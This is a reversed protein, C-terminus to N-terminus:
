IPPQASSIHERIKDLIEDLEKAVDNALSLAEASDAKASLELQRAMDMLPMACLIGAVGKLSHGTFALSKLDNDRAANRLKEPTDANTKLAKGLMKAIFDERQEFNAYLKTWDIGSTLTPPIEPAQAVEIATPYKTPEIGSTSTHRAHTRIATLLLVPDIPKAVHEIMGAARCNEREEALAHATLGIVPLDPDIKKLHRTAELGDMEPMQIDMLVVDFKAPGQQQLLDLAIKGNEAFVVQAGAQELLDALVYRNLEMDEAALISIGTLQPETGSLVVGKPAETMEVEPLPLKLTFTSGKDTESAVVIDGGMLRALQRSISLGLGTGGFRRTTSGDAQEFSQFLKSLQTETMGIGTDRVVFQTANDTHSVVLDIGGQHTFKLANSLLNALIQRLRLPDGSVHTRAEPVSINLYLGKDAATDAIMAVAEDVVSRLAFTQTDIKLKGAEIKSFDLIDNIIGLLHTGSGLIQDCLNGVKTGPNERQGIRALGIVANLPTRIEHSMNALFESKARTAAEVAAEARKRETIDTSVSIYEKPRGFEDMFPAITSDVWVLRGDKTRNCVEGHWVKGYSVTDYITKFFHKAHQGSNIIRHNNGLLEDSAYGTIECFKKNAYTINGETDTVSVIAHNDLAFKQNELARLATKAEAASAQLQKEAAKRPGIDTFGVVTGIVKGDVVIPQGAVSVALPQGDACWYVDDDFRIPHGQYLTAHQHCEERDMPSGDPRSHHITEHVPRGLLEESRYGLLRCATPNVFSFNGVADAGFLGDATSELTLRLKESERRLAEEASKRVTIDHWACLILPRSDQVIPTM